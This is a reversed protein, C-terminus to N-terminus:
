TGVSVLRLCDKDDPDDLRLRDGFHELYYARIEKNEADLGLLWGERAAENLLLRWLARGAGSPGRGPWIQWRVWDAVYHDIPSQFSAVRRRLTVGSRAMVFMPLLALLRWLGAGAADLAFLLLITATLGLVLHCALSDRWAGLTFVRVSARGGALSLVSGCAQPAPALALAYLLAFPVALARPFRFKRRLCAEYFYQAQAWAPVWFQWRSRHHLIVPRGEAHRQHRLHSDFGCPGHLGVTKSVTADAMGGSRGRRM